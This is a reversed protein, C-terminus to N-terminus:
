LINIYEGKQRSVGGGGGRLAAAFINAFNM